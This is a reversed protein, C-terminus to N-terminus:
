VARAPGLPGAVPGQADPAAAPQPNLVATVPVPAVPAVPAAAADDVAAAAHRLAEAHQIRRDCADFTEAACERERCEFECAALEPPVESIQARWWAALRGLTRQVRAVM